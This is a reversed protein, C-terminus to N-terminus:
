LRAYSSKEKEQQGRVAVACPREPRPAFFMRFLGGFIVEEMLLACAVSFVMAAALTMATWASEM